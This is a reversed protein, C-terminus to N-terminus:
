VVIVSDVPQSHAIPCRPPFPILIFCQAPVKKWVSKLLNLVLARLHALMLSEVPWKSGSRENVLERFNQLLLLQWSRMLLLIFRDTAM